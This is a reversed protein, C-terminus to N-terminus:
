AKKNYVIVMWIRKSSSSQEWVRLRDIRCANKKPAQGSLLLLMAFGDKDALILIIAPRLPIRGNVNDDSLRFDRRTMRANNKLIIFIGDFIQLAAVPCKDVPLLNL